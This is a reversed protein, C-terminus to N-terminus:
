DTSHGASSIEDGNNDMVDFSARLTPVKEEQELYRALIKRDDACMKQEIFSLM